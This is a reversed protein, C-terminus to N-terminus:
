RPPRVPLRGLNMAPREVLAFTVSALVVAALGVLALAAAVSWPSTGDIWGRRIVVVILPFHWLYIGYSIEGLRALPRCGLVRTATTPTGRAAADCVVLVVGGAALGMASSIFWHHTDKLVVTMVIGGVIMACALFAARGATWTPWRAQQTWVFLVAVAMGVAFNDAYVALSQSWVALANSGFEAQEIPGGGRQAYWREALTRSAVAVSALIMPPLVALVLRHRSRGVLVVALLPVAAYFALETTLSWSPPIGTQLLAPVLAATLTLNAALMGPDTMLGTGADTGAVGVEAENALYVARLGLDAVLFIVLYGPFIRLLRRTAYRGVAIRRQGDAIDRVFPTYILMGSLVFFLTVGRALVAPIADPVAGPTVHTLAHAALVGLCALARLGDLAAVYRGVDSGPDRM